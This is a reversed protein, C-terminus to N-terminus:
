KTNTHLTPVQSSKFSFSRKRTMYVLCRQAVDLSSVM